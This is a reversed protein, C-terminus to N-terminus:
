NLEAQVIQAIEDAITHASSPSGMRLFSEPSQTQWICKQFFGKTNTLFRFTTNRRQLCKCHLLFKKFIGGLLKYYSQIYPRLTWMLNLFIETWNSSLTTFRNPPIQTILSTICSVFMGSQYNSKKTSLYWSFHKYCTM